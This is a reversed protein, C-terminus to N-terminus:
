AIAKQFQRLSLANLVERKRVGARRAQHIGFYLNELDYISHADTSIVFPIGRKRALRTWQPEMDLRYPDGSIEIACRHRKM